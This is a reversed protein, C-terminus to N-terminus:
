FIIENITSELLWYYQDIHLNCDLLPWWWAIFCIVQLSVYMGLFTIRHEFVYCSKRVNSSSMIRVRGVILLVISIIRVFWCFYCDFLLIDLLRCETRNRINCICEKERYRTWFMLMIIDCSYIYIWCIVETLM